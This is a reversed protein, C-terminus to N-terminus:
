FGVSVVQPQVVNKIVLRDGTKLGLEAFTYTLKVGNPFLGKCEDPIKVFFAGEMPSTRDLTLGITEKSTCGGTPVQITITQSDYTLGMLVLQPSALAAPAFLMPAFALAKM